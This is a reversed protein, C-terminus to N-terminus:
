YCIVDGVKEVSKLFGAIADATAQADAVDVTEICTHMYRLPLAFLVSPIGNRAIQTAAANTGTRENHINFKYKIDAKDMSDTVAKLLTPHINPGKALVTGEGMPFVNESADPSKGHCVDIVIAFDPDINYVACTAGRLGLEEQTSAVAYLDFPLEVDKLQELAEIIVSLSTRDDQAKTSIKGGMLNLTKNKITVSDGLRIIKKLEEASYGTDIYLKEKPVTKGKEEATLIHPPKAGIVGLIDSKGHLIVEQALLTRADIGGVDEFYVFGKEDIDSVMLGVEDIHADLMVKGQPNKSRKIGIVNNMDDIECEDCLTEFIKKVEVAIGYEDGSIGHLNSLFEINERIGMVFERLM